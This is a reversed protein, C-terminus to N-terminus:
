STTGFCIPNEGERPIGLSERPVTTSFEPVNTTLPGGIFPILFNHRYGTVTARVYRIDGFSATPDAVVTGQDDLYEIDIDEASLGGIIPSKGPGTPRDFVAVRTIAGHDIPCVAAIRAARRTVETLGNWVFMARGMEIVGFLLLFFLAGVIAFEVTTTGRQWKDPNRLM